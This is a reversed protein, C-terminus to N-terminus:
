AANALWPIMWAWSSSKVWGRSSCTSSQWAWGTEPGAPRPLFVITPRITSRDWPVPLVIMRTVTRRSAFIWGTVLVLFNEFSRDTMVGALPQLVLIFSNVLCM